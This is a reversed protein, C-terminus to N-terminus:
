CAPGRRQAPHGTRGASPTGPLWRPLGVTRGQRGPAPSAGAREQGADARDDSRMLVGSTNEGTTATSAPITPMTDRVSARALARMPTDMETVVMGTVADTPTDIANELQLSAHPDASCSSRLTTTSMTTPATPRLVCRLIQRQRMPRGGPANRGSPLRPWSCTRAPKSSVCRGPVRAILGAQAAAGM